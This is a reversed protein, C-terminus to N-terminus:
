LLRIINLRGLESDASGSVERLKSFCAEVYVLGYMRFGRAQNVRLGSGWARM